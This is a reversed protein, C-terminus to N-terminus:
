LSGIYEFGKNPLESPTWNTETWCVMPENNMWSLNSGEDDIPSLCYVNGEFITYLVEPYRSNWYLKM